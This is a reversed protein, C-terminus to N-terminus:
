RRTPAPDGQGGSPPQPNWQLAGDPSKPQGDSTLQHAERQALDMVWVEPAGSRNSLFALASGDPSWVPAIGTTLDHVQDTTTDVIHVQYGAYLCPDDLSPERGKPGQCAQGTGTRASVALYRGDPSWRPEQRTDIFGPLSIPHATRTVTDLVCLPSAPSSQGSGDGKQATQDCHGFYVLRRADPSWANPHLYAIDGLDVFPGADSGASSVLWLSQQTGPLNADIYAIRSGDPSIAGGQVHHPVALRVGQLTNADILQLGVQEVDIWILFHRGDPHWGYFRGGGYQSLVPKVVGRRVDLVHVVCCPMGSEMLVLYDGNPSPWIAIPTFALNSPLQVQAAPATLRQDAGLPIRFHALHPSPHPQNPRAAEIESVYQISSPGPAHGQASPTATLPPPALTLTSHPIPPALTPRPSTPTVIPYAPLARTPAPATPALIPYAALTVTPAAVPPAAPNAAVAVTERQRAAFTWVVVAALLLVASVGLLRKLWFM